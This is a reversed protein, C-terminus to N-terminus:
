TQERTNWKSKYKKKIKKDRPPKERRKKSEERRLTKKNKKKFKSLNYEEFRMNSTRVQKTM